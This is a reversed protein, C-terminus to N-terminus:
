GDNREEDMSEFHGQKNGSSKMNSNSVMIAIDKNNNWM